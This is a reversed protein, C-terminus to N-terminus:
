SMDATPRMAAQSATTRVLCEELLKTDDRSSLRKYVAGGLLVQLISQMLKDLAVPGGLPLTNAVFQCDQDITPM